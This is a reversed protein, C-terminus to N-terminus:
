EEDDRWRARGRQAKHRQAAEKAESYPLDRYYQFSEWGSKAQLIKEENMGRQNINGDKLWQIASWFLLGYQETSGRYVFGLSALYDKLQQEILGQLDGQVKVAQWDWGDRALWDHTAKHPEGQCIHIVDRGKDANLKRLVGQAAQLSGLRYGHREFAPSQFDGVSVLAWEFAKTHPRYGAIIMGGVPCGFGADDIIITPESMTEGPQIQLVQNSM